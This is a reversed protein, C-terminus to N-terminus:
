SAAARHGGGDIEPRDPGFAKVITAPVVRNAAPVVVSGAAVNNMVVCNAGIKAENGVTIKGLVRAGVYVDVNDGIRPLEDSNANTGVTVEHFILTNRGMKCPGIMINRPHILCLGPGINAHESISVNLATRWMLDVARLSMVLPGRVLGSKVSAALTRARYTAGIWFGPNRAWGGLTDYRKADGRLAELTKKM